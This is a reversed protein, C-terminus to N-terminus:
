YLKFYSSAPRPEGRDRWYTKASPDLKKGLVDRGMARFVLAIPTVVLYYIIAILVHSLVFGLPYVVVMLAVYLWHTLQRIGALFLLLQAVGIGAIVLVATGTWHWAWVRHWAIEPSAFWAALVPFGIAAIWAFQRLVREEPRFNLKIM